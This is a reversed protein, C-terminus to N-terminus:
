EASEKTPRLFNLHREGEVEVRYVTAAQVAVKYYLNLKAKEGQAHKSDIGVGLCVGEIVAEEM